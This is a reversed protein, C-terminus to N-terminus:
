DKVEEVSIVIRVKKPADASRRTALDLNHNADTALRDLRTSNVIEDLLQRMNQGGKKLYAERKFSLM